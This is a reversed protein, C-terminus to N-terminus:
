KWNVERGKKRGGEWRRGEESGGEEKREREQERGKEREAQWMEDTKRRRRRRRRRRVFTHLCIQVPPANGSVRSTPSLPSPPLITNGKGKEEGGRGERAKQVEGKKEAWPSSFTNGTGRIM